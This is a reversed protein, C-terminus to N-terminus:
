RSARSGGGSEYGSPLLIISSCTLPGGLGETPLSCHFSLRLNKTQGGSLVWWNVIGERPLTLTPSAVCEVGWDGIGMRALKSWLWLGAIISWRKSLDCLPRTRPGPFSTVSLTRPNLDWGRRQTSKHLSLNTYERRKTLRQTRHPLVSHVGGPDSPLLPLCGTKPSVPFGPTRVLRLSRVFKKNKYFDLLVGTSVNCQLTEVQM